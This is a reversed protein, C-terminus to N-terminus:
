SIGHKAKCAKIAENFGECLSIDNNAACQLFQKIEWSCPGTPESPYAYDDSGRRGGGAIKDGVAQGVAVGGATAAWQGFLGPQRRPTEKIIVTERTHTVRQDYNPPPSQSHKQCCGSSSSSSRSSGRGGGGRGGGGRPM